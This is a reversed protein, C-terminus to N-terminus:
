GIAKTVQEYIAKMGKQNPHGNEKEVDQLLINTIHYKNSIEIMYERIPGTIEDNIINYIKSTSHTKTLYYMMKCFAPAFSKLEEATWDEYKPEGVPVGAWFDNTGGFVLLIDPSKTDPGLERYMRKIFSLETADAGDYWTNCVPSGSYSCNAVLEYGKKRVLQHWWTQ